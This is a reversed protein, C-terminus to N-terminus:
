HGNVFCELDVREALQRLVSQGISTRETLISDTIAREYKMIKQHQENLVEVIEDGNMSHEILWEEIEEKDYWEPYKPLYETDTIFYLEEMDVLVYRENETM